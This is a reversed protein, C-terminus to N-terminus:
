FYGTECSLVPSTVDIGPVCQRLQTTRYLMASLEFDLQGIWNLLSDM